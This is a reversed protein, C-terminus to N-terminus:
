PAPRSRTRAPDPARRTFDHVLLFAVLTGALAGVALGDLPFPLDFSVNLWVGLLASLLIAAAVVRRRHRRPLPGLVTVGSRAAPSIGAVEELM